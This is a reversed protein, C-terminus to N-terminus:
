STIGINTLATRIANVAAEMSQSEAQSYIVGPPTPAAIAGARAVPAVGYLGIQTTTLEIMKNTGASLAWDNAGVRFIGCDTDTKFRIGPNSATGDIGEFRGAANIQALIAGTSDQWEQLNATQGAVGKVIFKTDTATGTGRVTLAGLGAAQDMILSNPQGANNSTNSWTILADRAMRLQSDSLEVRAGNGSVFDLTNALRRYFGLDTDSGFGIAPNAQTGDPFLQQSQTWTNAAALRGYRADAQVQSLGGSRFGM